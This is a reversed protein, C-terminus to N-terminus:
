AEVSHRCFTGERIQDYKANMKETAPFPDRSM